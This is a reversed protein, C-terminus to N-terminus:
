PPAEIEISESSRNETTARFETVPAVTVAVAFWM